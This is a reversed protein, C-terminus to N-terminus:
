MRVPRCAAFGMVGLCLISVPWIMRPSVAFIVLFSAILSCLGSWVGIVGLYTALRVMFDPHHAAARVARWIPIKAPAITLPVDDETKIGGLADRYWKSIILTNKATIPIPVRPPKNYQNTFNADITRCECFVPHGNHVIKVIKRSKLEDTEWLWVWGSNSEDALAAFTKYKM